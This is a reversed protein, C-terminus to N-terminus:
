SALSTISDTTSEVVPNRREEPRGCKGCTDRSTFGPSLTLHVVAVRIDLEEAGANGTLAGTLCTACLPSGQARVLDAIRECLHRLDSRWPAEM